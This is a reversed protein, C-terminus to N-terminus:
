RVCGVIESISNLHHREAYEEMGELVQLTAAPEHFNAAGVAVASAGAMMLELADEATCVGGMGIIPLKVANAVQYVM